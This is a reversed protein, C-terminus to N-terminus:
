RDKEPDFMRILVHSRRAFHQFLAGTVHLVIAALLGNTFLMHVYGAGEIGAFWAIMGTVPLLLLFLYISVHVAEAAVQLLRPEDAPPSPAGRTARLYIRALAMILVLLGGAIHMYTLITADAPTEGGDLFANWAAEIAAHALFQFAVLVVVAWHLAIQLSSYGNVQRAM